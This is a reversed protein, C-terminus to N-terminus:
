PPPAPQGNLRRFLSRTLLGGIILGATPGYITATLVEIISPSWFLHYPKCATSSQITFGAVLLAAFLGRFLAHRSCRQWAATLPIALVAIAPIMLRPGYCSGGGWDAWCSTLGLYLLFVLWAITLPDALARRLTQRRPLGLVALVAVPAFVLLGHHPDLLVGILGRVPDGMRFPQFTEFPKGYVAINKAIWIGAVVAPGALLTPIRKWGRIAAAALLVPGVALLASEKLTLAAGLFASGAINRDRSILWLALVVTSWIFPETFFTRSYFWLPSAFYLGLALDGAGLSRNLLDRGALLAAFTVTLGFLGLLFDPASGPFLAQQVAILPAALLPLGLPHSFV